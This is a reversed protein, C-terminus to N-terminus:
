LPNFQRGIMNELLSFTKSQQEKLQAVEQLIKEFTQIEYQKKLLNDRVTLAHNEYQEENFFSNNQPLYTDPLDSIAVLLIQIKNLDAGLDLLYMFSHKSILEKISVQNKFFLKLDDNSIRFILWRNSEDNYDVWRYFYNDSPNNKDVFHSLLPGEHYIFDGQKVPDFDLHKIQIGKVKKM